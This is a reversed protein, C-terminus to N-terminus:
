NDTTKQTQASLFLTLAQLESDSFNFDPMISGAVLSRPDIFHQQLWPPTRQLGVVSLDPGVRGGNGNIMHCANCAKSEFLRGGSEASVEVVPVPTEKWKKHAFFNQIPGSVLNEGTLSELYIVLAKIEDESLAMTPMLSERNNAKPDVVSERIYRADWKAGVTTLEVGLKGDSVGDIKHCGYCAKSHYLEAGKRLNPTAELYPAPHCKACASEAYEGKLLPEKWNETHGHADKASLGRGNGAHCTTCGFDRFPHKGPLSPHTKFPQVDNAFRADDIGQHCTMCRDVRKEKFKTIILQEIRPEKAAIINRVQENDTKAFALALYEKQYARWETRYNKAIIFINSFILLVAGVILAIKIPNEIRM